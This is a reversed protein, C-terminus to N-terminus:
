VAEGSRITSARRQKKVPADEFRVWVTMTKDANTKTRINMNPFHENRIMYFRSISKYTGVRAWIEPNAFKDSHNDRLNELMGRFTQKKNRRKGNEPAPPVEFKIRYGM